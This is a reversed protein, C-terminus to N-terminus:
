KFRLAEYSYAYKNLIDNNTIAGTDCRKFARIIERLAGANETQAEIRFMSIGLRRMENILPLITFRCNTLLHTRHHQDRYIEYEGAENYLKFASDSDHGYIGFFDHDFYMHELRGHAILEVSDFAECFMKLAAANLEVSAAAQSVGHSRYFGAALGNFINLFYDGAVPAGMKAFVEISGLNGALIGDIHPLMKQIGATYIEFQAENMMRPTGLYLECQKKNEKIYSKLSAADEVTMPRDPNLIDGSIYVRDANEDIALLAQEMNNVRVSLKPEKEPADYVALREKISATDKDTILAETTPTSFMKGTSYFKGTGEYRKNINELGPRGFAYATSMDRKRTEYIKDADKRRDYGVPDAIFSDLADGYYNILNTIFEVERMRGEIKFSDVGSHIMEPLYEYMCMDRVALPYDKESNGNEASFWWRCPKLCKGRNSSMGFLMSSYYCQAGHSICMDGHTFYEVEIDINSKLWKIEELTNNRSVVIRSFDSEKLVRAFAINHVNMMVSSHLALGLGMKRVLESVAFDQVLLGDPGISALLELYNQAHAIESEDVLNNVTIYVKKDKAHAMKVADRIEDDSFNFGKRILRMNMTQGGFYIADCKSDVISRFIEFNGAPALLEINRENFKRM